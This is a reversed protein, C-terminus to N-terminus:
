AYEAEVIRRLAARQQPTLDDQENKPYALLMLLRATAVHWYYIVRIGGRKGRGRGAWRMKRLGGTGPVIRGLGPRCVLEAQLLRYDEDALLSRIRATFVHTEVIVM